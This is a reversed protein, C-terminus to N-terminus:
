GCLTPLGAKVCPILDRYIPTGVWTEGSLAFDRELGERNLEKWPLPFQNCGM